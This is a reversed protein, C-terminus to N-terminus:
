SNSLIVVSVLVLIISIVLAIVSAILQRKKAIGILSFLFAACACILTFVEFPSGGRRGGAGFYLILQFVGFIALGLGVAGWKYGRKTSVSASANVSVPEVSPAQDNNQNAM